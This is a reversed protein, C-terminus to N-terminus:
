NNTRRPMNGLATTLIDVILQNQPIREAKSALRIAEYLDSPVRITLKTTDYVPYEDGLEHFTTGASLAKHFLDDQHPPIPHIDSLNANPFCLKMIEINSKGAAIYDMVQKRGGMMRLYRAIGASTIAYGSQHLFAIAADGELGQRLAEIIREQKGRM